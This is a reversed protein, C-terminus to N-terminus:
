FGACCVASEGAAVVSTQGEEVEARGLRLRVVLLEGAMGLSVLQWQGSTREQTLVGSCAEYTEIAM